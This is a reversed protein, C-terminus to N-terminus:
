RPSLPTGDAGDLPLGLFRLATPALDVPATPDFCESGAAVGPGKLFLMPGQAHRGLGGHQGHGVPYNEGDVRNHCVLTRGPVGFENPADDHRMSVAAVLAGGAPLGKAALDNGAVVRGAWPQARLFALVEPARREQGPAAYVLASGGNPALMIDASTLDAKLGAAVLEAEIDVSGSITEHGHDSCLIFLTDSFGPDVAAIAAHVTAVNRDALALAALHRSSGLPANHSTKDPESLWIVAVPPRRGRVVEEAFRATMATDGEGGGAVALPEMQKLGPAWSGARHYLHGFGDPDQAYAAGPSVNSCIVAGGIAAVREALTPRHFTRGGNAKRLRDRFQPHGSNLVVPGGAEAVVMSNGVLGHSMPWSGTAISSSVVRTNSPFVSRHHRFSRAEHQLAHIFPTTDPRVLDARMGDCVMIVVRRM